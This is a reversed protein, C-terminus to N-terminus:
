NSFNTRPWESPAHTLKRGLSEPECSAKLIQCVKSESFVKTYFVFGQFVELAVVWTHFCSRRKLLEEGCEFPVDAEFVLVL